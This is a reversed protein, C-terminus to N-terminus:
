DFIRKARFRCGHSGARKASRDWLGRLRSEGVLNALRTLEDALPSGLADSETLSGVLRRLDFLGLRPATKSTGNRRRPWGPWGPRAPASRSIVATPTGAPRDSPGTSRAVGAGERRSTGDEVREWSVAAM